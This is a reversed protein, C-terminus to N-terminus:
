TANIAPGGNGTFGGAGTGAYTTIIGNTGIRRIRQNLYEAIYVTGDPDVAVSSPGNLQAATALGGDGSFGSEGTGPITTVNALRDIKYVSDKLYDAVDMNGQTDVTVDIAGGWTTSGAATSITQAGAPIAFGIASLGVVLAL